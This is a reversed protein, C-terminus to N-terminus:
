YYYKKYKDKKEKEELSVVLKRLLWDTKNIIEVFMQYTIDKGKIEKLNRYTGKLLPFELIKISNNPNRSWENWLKLDIGLDQLASNPKSLLFGDQLWRNVEGRVEELSGQTFGIYDLYEKTTPRKWGEEINAVTSRSADNAQTKTRFEFKPLTNTFKRILIRLLVLNSWQILFKYGQPSTWKRSASQPIEAEELEKMTKEHLIEEITKTM